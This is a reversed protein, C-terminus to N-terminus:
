GQREGMDKGKQWDLYWGWATVAAVVQVSVEGAATISIKQTHAIGM